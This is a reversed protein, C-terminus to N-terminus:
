SPVKNAPPTVASADVGPAEEIITGVEEPEQLVFESGIM